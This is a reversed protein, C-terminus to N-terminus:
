PIRFITLASEGNAGVKAQGEMELSVQQDAGGSAPDPFSVQLASFFFGYGGDGNMVAYALSFPDQTLKRGLFNWVSNKLYTSLTVSIRATGSDYSEPAAKGICTLDSMNNDLTFALNQLCFGDDIIESGGGATSGIIPLDISGNLSRTTAQPLVTRGNSIQDIAAAVAEQDNGMMGFTGTMLEGYAANINMTNVLMGRYNISKTTLDSFNKEISFSKQDLGISLSDCRTLVAAVKVEDVLPSKSIYEVVTATVSTVFVLVNNASNVFTSLKAFTNATLGGTLFSGAARTITKATADITLDATIPALVNWASHMASSMLLDTVSDKALEINIDGGVELGTVVQGSSQRDTRLNQSETTDPTGSLSESTYRATSFDGTAPTEGYVTEEILKLVVRNASSM